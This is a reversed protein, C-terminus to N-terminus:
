VGTIEVARKLTARTLLMVVAPPFDLNPNAKYAPPITAQALDHIEKEVDRQREAIRRDESRPIPDVVDYALMLTSVQWDFYSHTGDSM